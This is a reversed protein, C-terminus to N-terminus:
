AVQFRQAPVAKVYQAYMVGHEAKFTKTDFRQTTYRSWRAKIGDASIEENDGMAAKIEDELAALEEALENQLDKLSRYEKLMTGIEKTNMIREKGGCTPCCNANRLSTQLLPALRFLLSSVIWYMKAISRNGGRRRSYTQQSFM